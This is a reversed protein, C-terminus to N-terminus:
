LLALSYKTSACIIIFFSDHPLEVRSETSALAEGFSRQKPIAAHNKKEYRSAYTRFAEGTPM